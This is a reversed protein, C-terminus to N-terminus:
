RRSATATRIASSPPTIPRAPITTSARAPRATMRGAMRSAQPTSATSRRPLAPASACMPASTAASPAWGRGCTSGSSPTASASASRTPGCSSSRTASRTSCPKTSAARDRSRACRIWVFIDPVQGFVVVGLLAAGILQMYNFPSVFPAPAIEFARVLFYHGFGGFLGLSLFIAADIWSGPTEWVFPLPLTTLVFGALAIYTISTEAPDHAALKRTLLQYLASAFASGFFLLAAPNAGEMGPRVVVLAGALGLAVAIWRWRGVREGLMLPALATVFFPGTFSIATATALAVHPLGSIFILTSVCLLTSRLLQLGPRSCALLRLGRRPAFLVLMYIFHGAYRAWAIELIPYSASLYKASANLLPILAAAAVMYLVARNLNDGRGEAINV